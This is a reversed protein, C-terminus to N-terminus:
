AHMPQNRVRQEREVVELTWSLYYEQRLSMVPKHWSIITSKLRQLEDFTLGRVTQTFDQTDGNLVGLLMDTFYTTM